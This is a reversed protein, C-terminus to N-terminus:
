YSSRMMREIYAVDERTCGPIMGQLSRFLVDNPANSIGILQEKVQTPTAKKITKSQKILGLWNFPEQLAYTIKKM